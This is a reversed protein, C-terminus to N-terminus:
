VGTIKEFIFSPAKGASVLIVPLLIKNVLKDDTVVGLLALSPTTLAFGVLSVKRTGYRDSLAGIFTGMLSPVTIALFILGAGSSSWHFTRKVFLPLIADFSATVSACTFCGYVAAKLRPSGLLLAMTPFNRSFWSNNKQSRPLLSITEDPDPLLQDPQESGLWTSSGDSGSSCHDPAKIDTTEEGALHQHDHGERHLWKAATRKEIMILRLMFDFIIVGLVVAFVAYYGAKEYILGALFPGILTGLNMGSLVFGMRNRSLMYSDVPSPTVCVM